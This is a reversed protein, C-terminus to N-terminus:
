FHTSSDSFNRRQRPQNGFAGTADDSICVSRFPSGAMGITERDLGRHRQVVDGRPLANSRLKVADKNVIQTSTANVNRYAANGEGVLCADGEVLLEAENLAGTEILHAELEVFPHINPVPLQQQLSSYLPRCDFPVSTM